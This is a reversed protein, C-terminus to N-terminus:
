AFIDANLGVPNKPDPGYKNPGATGPIFCVIFLGLGVLINVLPVLAGLLIWGSLNVDHLRRLMLALGPIITALMYLFIVGVLVFYIPGPEGTAYNISGPLFAVLVLATVVLTNFLYVWWYEARRSRGQFDAYRNFFSRVAEGFGLPYGGRHLKSPNSSLPRLGVLARAM